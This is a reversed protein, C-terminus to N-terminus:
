KRAEGFAAGDRLATDPGVRPRVSGHQADPAGMAAQAVLRLEAIAAVGGDCSRGGVCALRRKPGIDVLAGIRVAQVELVPVVDMAAAADQLHTPMRQRMGDQPGAPRM